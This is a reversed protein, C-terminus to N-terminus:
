VINELAKTLDADGGVFDRIVGAVREAEALSEDLDGEIYPTDGVWKYFRDYWQNILKLNREYSSGINWTAMSSATKEPNRKCFIVKDTPDLVIKEIAKRLSVKVACASDGLGSLDGSLTDPYEWFPKNDPQMSPDRNPPHPVGFVHVRMHVLTQMVLSTGSRPFGVVLIKNAM